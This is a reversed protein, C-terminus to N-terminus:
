MTQHIIVVWTEVSTHTHMWRRADEEQSFPSAIRQLNRLLTLPTPIYFRCPRIGCQPFFIQERRGTKKWSWIYIHSHATAEPPWPCQPRRKRRTRLGDFATLEQSPAKTWPLDFLWRGRRGPASWSMKSVTLRTGNGTTHPM